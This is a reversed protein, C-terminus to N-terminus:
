LLMSRLAMAVYGCAWSAALLSFITMCCALLPPALLLLPYRFLGHQRERAILSITPAVFAAIVCIGIALVAVFLPARGVKGALLPLLVMSGLLFSEIPALAMVYLSLRRMRQKTQGEKMGVTLLARYFWLSTKATLYMALALPIVEWWRDLLAYAPAIWFAEESLSPRQAPWLSIKAALLATATVTALLTSIRAFRRAAAIHIPSEIQRAFLRPHLIVM